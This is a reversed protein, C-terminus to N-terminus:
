KGKPGNEGSPTGRNRACVSKERTWPYAAWVEVAAEASCPEGHQPKGEKEIEKLEKLKWREM